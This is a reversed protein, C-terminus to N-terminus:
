ASVGAFDTVTQSEDGCHNLPLVCNNETIFKPEDMGWAVVCETETVNKTDDDSHQKFEM